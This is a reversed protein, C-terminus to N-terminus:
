PEIGHALDDEALLQEMFQLRRLEKPGLDPNLEALEDLPLLEALEGPQKRETM